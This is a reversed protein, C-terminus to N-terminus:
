WRSATRSHKAHAIHEVLLGSPKRHGEATVGHLFIAGDSVFGDLRDLARLAAQVMRGFRANAKIGILRRTASALKGRLVPHQKEAPEIDRASM